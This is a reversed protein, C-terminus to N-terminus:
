STVTPVDSSAVVAVTTPQSTTSSQGRGTAVGRAPCGIPLLGPLFGAAM